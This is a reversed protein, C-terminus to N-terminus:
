KWEGVVIYGLSLITQATAGNRLVFSGGTIGSSTGVVGYYDWTTGAWGPSVTLVPSSGSKFAVPYTITQSVGNSNAALSVSLGYKYQIMTGNAFKIYIGSTTAGSAVIPVGAYQPMGMPFNAIGATSIKFDVVGGSENFNRGVRLEGDLSDVGFNKNDGTLFRLQPSNQGGNDMDIGSASKTANNGGAGFTVKEKFSKKGIASQEGKTLIANTDVYNKNAVQNSTQPDVVLPSQVFSKVGGIIQDGTIKVNELNAAELSDVNEEIGQVAYSLSDIRGDLGQVSFLAEQLAGWEDTSEAAGTFDPSSEISIQFKRSRTESFEANKNIIIWCQLDGSVAVTQGTVTYQVIGNIPDIVECDNFVEYGDPKVAYFRVQTNTLNVPLGGSTLNFEITRGVVENQVFFVSEIVRQWMDVNVRKLIM